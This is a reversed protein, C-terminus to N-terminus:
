QVTKEITNGPLNWFEVGVKFINDSVKSCWKVLAFIPRDSLTRSYVKIDQGRKLQTGTYLGLGRESINTTLAENTLCHLRDNEVLSMSYLITTTFVKRRDTRKEDYSAM